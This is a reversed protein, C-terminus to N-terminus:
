GFVKGSLDASVVDRHREPVCECRCLWKREGKSTKEYTDLVTWRGIVTGPSIGAIDM